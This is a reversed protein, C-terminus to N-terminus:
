PRCTSVDRDMHVDEKLDLNRVQFRFIELLIKSFIVQKLFIFPVFFVFTMKNLEM